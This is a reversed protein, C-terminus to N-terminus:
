RSRESGLWMEQAVKKGRATLHWAHPEGMNRKRSSSRVLGLSQIRALLKSIQGQDAIGAADALESSCAGPKAAIADLVRLTRYTPRMGLSALVGNSPKTAAKALSALRPGPRKGEQAAAAPGLYPLVIMATLPSVLAILRARRRQVLRAHIVM